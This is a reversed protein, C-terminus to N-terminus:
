KRLSSQGNLGTGEYLFGDLYLLGQTFANRDHPYSHVVEYGYVPTVAPQSDGSACSGLLLTFFCLIIRFTVTKLIGGHSFRSTCANACSGRIRTSRSVGNTMKATPSTTESTIRFIM